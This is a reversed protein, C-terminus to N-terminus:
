FGLKECIKAYVKFSKNEKANERLCNLTSKSIGIKQAQKQTLELIRKRMELSDSRMVKPTPETFDVTESKGLLFRGLEETKKLIVTDLKWSKGKYRVGSNFREKLLELFRRKAEFDIHYRYDDGHFYFDKLDLLGSEFAELSAVECIWRFPEQLDYVLPYKPQVTEHLFGISPELGVSNISARCRSELFAYGYNLLTNVPDTSNMQHKQSIRSSFEYKKPIVSQFIKWYTEAVRGEM